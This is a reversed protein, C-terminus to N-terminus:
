RPNQESTDMGSRYTSHPFRQDFARLQGAVAAPEVRRLVEIRMAEREEAFASNPFRQAHEVLLELAREPSAKRAARAAHLLELEGAPRVWPARPSRKGSPRSPAPTPTAEITTESSVMSDTTSKPVPESRGAVTAAVPRRPALPVPRSQYQWAVIAGGCVAFLSVAALKGLSWTAARGADLGAATPPTLEKVVAATLSALQTDNPGQAAAHQMLARLESSVESHADKWRTPTSM